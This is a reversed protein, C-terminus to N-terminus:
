KPKTAPTKDGTAPPSIGVFHADNQVARKAIEKSTALMPILDLTAQDDLPQRNYIM